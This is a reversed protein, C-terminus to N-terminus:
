NIENFSLKLLARCSSSKHHQKEEGTPMHTSIASYLAAQQQAQWRELHPSFTNMNKNDNRGGSRCQVLVLLHHHSGLLSSSSQLDCSKQQFFVYGQKVEKELAAVNFTCILSWNVCSLNEHVNWVLIRLTRCKSIIIDALFLSQPLPVRTKVRGGKIGAQTLGAIPVLCSSQPWSPVSWGKHGSCLCREEKRPFPSFPNQGLM